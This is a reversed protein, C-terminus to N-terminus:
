VDYGSGYTATDRKLKNSHNKHAAKRIKLQEKTFMRLERDKDNKHEKHAEQACASSCYKSRRGPTFENGCPAYGCDVTFRM